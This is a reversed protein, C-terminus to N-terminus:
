SCLSALGRRAGAIDGGDLADRVRFAADRLARCAFMPKLLATTLAFALLPSRGVSQFLAYAVLAFGAPLVVALALGRLFQGLKGARLAWERGLAIAHGMWAVPHIANPLEGFARDLAFSGLLALSANM